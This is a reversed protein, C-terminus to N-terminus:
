SQSMDISKILNLQIRVHSYQIHQNSENTLQKMTTKLKIVTFDESSKSTKNKVYLCQKLWIWSAQKSIADKVDDTGDAIM